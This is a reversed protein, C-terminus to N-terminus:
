GTQQHVRVFRETVESLTPIGVARPDVGRRPRYTLPRGELYHYPGPSLSSFFANEPRAVYAEFFEDIHPAVRSRVSPDELQGIVTDPPGQDVWKPLCFALHSGAAMYPYADFTM